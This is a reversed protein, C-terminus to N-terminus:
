WDQEPAAGPAVFYQQLREQLTQANDGISELIRRAQEATLGDPAPIPTPAGDPNPTALDGPTPTPAVPQPTAASPGPTPTPTASAEAPDPQALDATPTADPPTLRRQALELNHKADQNDPQRRLVAKYLEAAETYQGASFRTNGLNFLVAAALADDASALAQEFTRAAAEYEGQRYQANAANYLPEASAVGAARAGAYRALSTEYDREAFAANGDALLRPGQPAACGVLWAAWLLWWLRQVLRM